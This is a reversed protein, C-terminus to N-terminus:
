SWNKALPLTIRTWANKAILADDVGNFMLFANDSALSFSFSDM